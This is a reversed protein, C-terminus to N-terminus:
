LAPHTTATTHETNWDTESANFLYLVDLAEALAGMLRAAGRFDSTLLLSLREEVRPTASLQSPTEEPLEGVVPPEIILNGQVGSASTKETRGRWTCLQVAIVSERPLTRRCCGRGTLARQLRAVSDTRAPDIEAPSEITIDGGDSPIRVKRHESHASLLLIGIGTIATGCTAMTVFSAAAIAQPWNPLLNDRRFVWSLLGAFMLLFPVGFGILFLYPHRVNDARPQLTWGFSDEVLEHTLSAFPFSGEHLVPGRPIHPLVSADAHRVSVPTLIRYLGIVLPLLGLVTFAGSMILAIWWQAPGAGAEPAFPIGAGILIFLTGIVVAIRSGPEHLASETEPWDHRPHM